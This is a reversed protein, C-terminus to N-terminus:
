SELKGCPKWNERDTSHELHDMVDKWPMAGLGNIFVNVITMYGCPYHAHDNGKQRFWCNIPVDAMTWAVLAPKPKCRHPVDHINAMTGANNWEDSRPNLYEFQREGRWYAKLVEINETQQEPTM